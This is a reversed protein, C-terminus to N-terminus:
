ATEMIRGIAVSIVGWRASDRQLQKRGTATLRYFKARRNKDSVGWESDLLGRVELRHLAPYLAGEEVGLVDDSREEIFEAIGYGHMPGRELTKLILMDLTDRLMEGADTRRREMIDKPFSPGLRQLNPQNNLQVPQPEPVNMCSIDEDGNARALSQAVARRGGMQDSEHSKRAFM